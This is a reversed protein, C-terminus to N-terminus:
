ETQDEEIEEYENDYALWDDIVAASLLPLMKDQMSMEYFKVPFTFDISDALLILFYLFGYYDSKDYMAELHSTVAEMPFDRLWLIEYFQYTFSGSVLGAAEFAMSEWASDTSTNDGDLMGSNKVRLLAEVYEYITM